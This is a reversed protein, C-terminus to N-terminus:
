LTPVGIGLPRWCGGRSYGHMSYTTGLIVTARLLWRVIALHPSQRYTCLCVHICHTDVSHLCAVNHRSWMIRHWTSMEKWTTHGLCTEILTQTRTSACSNVKFLGVIAKYGCVVKHVAYMAVLHGSHTCMCVAGGVALLHGQAEHRACHRTHGHMFHGAANTAILHWVLTLPFAGMCCAGLPMSRIVCYRVWTVVRYHMHVVTCLM